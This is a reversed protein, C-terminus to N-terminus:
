RRHGGARGDGYVERELLKGACRIQKRSFLLESVVQVHHARGGPDSLFLYRREAELAMMQQMASGVEDADRTVHAPDLRLHHRRSFHCQPRSVLAKRPVVYAGCEPGVPREDLGRAHPLRQM